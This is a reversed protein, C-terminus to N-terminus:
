LNILQSTTSHFGRSADATAKRNASAVQVIKRANMVVHHAVDAVATIRRTTALDVNSLPEDMETELASLNLGFARLVPNSDQGCSSQISM